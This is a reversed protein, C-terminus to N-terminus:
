FPAEEAFWDHTLYDIILRDAVGCDPVDLVNYGDPTLHVLMMAIQPETIAQLYHEKLLIRKYLNLQLMYKNYECDDLENAPPLLHQGFKNRRNIAENTKWDVILIQRDKQFIADITGALRLELSFVMKESALPKWGAEALDRMAEWGASMIARERDDAPQQYDTLANMMAEQNAHVRTGMECAHIRKVDWEALIQEATKPPNSFRAKKAAAKQADFPPIYHGVFQTVSPLPQWYEISKETDVLYRHADEDFYLSFPLSPHPATKM